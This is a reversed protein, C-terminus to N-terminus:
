PARWQTVQKLIAAAHDESEAWTSIMVGQPGIGAMFKTLDDPTVTVQVRKGAAQIKRYVDLWRSAPKAGDGYVYQIADLKKIALLRDLHPLAQPGDLHYISRDLWAIEEEIEEVFFKEFMKPSVMCSFDNSPVYYRGPSFLPLWTTTLPQGFEKLIAHQQDFATYFAPKLHRMLALVERPSEIVDLCFQQPGRLAAALDGGPHLDTIGVIFQGSAQECAKRTFALMTRLYENDLQIQLKPTDAWDTLFPSSWSTEEAFELHVGMIGALYDPGLNPQFTPLVEGVYLTNAIRAKARDILYDVDMWRARLNPHTKHPEPIKKRRPATIQVVPRDLIEGEWWAAMRRCAAEADPKTRLDLATM